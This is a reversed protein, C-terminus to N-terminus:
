SLNELSLIQHTREGGKGGDRGKLLWQSFAHQNGQTFGLEEGGWCNTLGLEKWGQLSPHFFSSAM